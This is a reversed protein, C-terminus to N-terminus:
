KIKATIDQIKIPQRKHYYDSYCRRFMERWKSYIKPHSKKLYIGEGVFGETYIMSTNEVMVQTFEIESLNNKSNTM